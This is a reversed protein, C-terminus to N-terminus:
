RLLPGGFDDDDDAPAPRHRPPQGPRPPAPPPPTPRPPVPPPPPDDHEAEFRMRHPDPQASPEPPPPPFQTKADDFIKNATEDQLGITEAMAQQMLAPLKSQALQVLRMIEASVEAMRKGAAAESIVVNTLLGRSSITVEVTSDKSRETISLESVRDAMAQYRQAKEQISRNWDDLMRESDDISHPVAERGRSRYLHESTGFAAV